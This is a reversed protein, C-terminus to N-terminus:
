QRCVRRVRGLPHCGPACLGADGRAGAAGDAHLHDGSRGIGVGRAKLAGALAAVRTQLEAYSIKQVTGTVPSDYIIAIREGHGAEVHRDVANWCGNLRGDAFWEYLPATDDFLAKTPPVDWDIAEAAAMWFADPDAQAAEYLAKYGM